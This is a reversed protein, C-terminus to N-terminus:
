TNEQKPVFGKLRLTVVVAGGAPAPDGGKLAGRLTIQNWMSLAGGRPPAYKVALPVRQGTDVKGGPPDLTFGMEEAEKLNEWVLEGAGKGCNGLMLAHEAGEGREAVGQPFTHELAIAPAADEEEPQQDKFRDVALPASQAKPSADYLFLAQRWCRGVVRWEMREKQNPVVIKLVAAFYLSEIDPAFTLTAAQEGEAPVRAEAPVVDLAALASANQEGLNQLEVSYTVDFPSRNTLTFPLAASGGVLV